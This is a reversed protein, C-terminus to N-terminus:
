KVDLIINKEFIQTLSLDIVIIQIMGSQPLSGEIVSLDFHNNVDSRVFTTKM